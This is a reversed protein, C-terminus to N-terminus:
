SAANATRAVGSSSCSRAVTAQHRPRSRGYRRGHGHRGHRCGHEHLAGASPTTREGSAPGRSGYSEM